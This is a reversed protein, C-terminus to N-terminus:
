NRHFESSQLESHIYMYKCCLKIYINYVCICICIYVYAFIYMLMYIQFSSKVQSFTYWLWHFPVFHYQKINQGIKSFKPSLFM